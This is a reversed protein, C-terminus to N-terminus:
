ATFRRETHQRMEQMRSNAYGASVHRGSQRQQMEPVRKQKQHLIQRLPELSEHVGDRRSFKEEHTEYEAGTHKHGDGHASSEVRQMRHRIHGLIRVRVHKRRHFCVDRSKKKRRDQIQFLYPLLKSASFGHERMRRIKFNKKMHYSEHPIMDCEKCHRRLFMVIPNANFSFFFNSFFKNISFHSFEENL